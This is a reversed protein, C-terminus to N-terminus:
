ANDSMASVPLQYILMGEDEVSFPKALSRLGTEDLFVQTEQSVTDGTM